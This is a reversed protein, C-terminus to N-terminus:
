KVSQAAGSDRLILVDLDNEPVFDSFRAEYHTAAIKKIGPFCTLVFDGPSTNISLRFKGIPGGWNRATTLIYKINWFFKERDTHDDSLASNLVGGDAQSKIEAVTDANGCFPEIASFGDASDSLVLFGGGVVPNYTQDLQVVKGAPFHQVWYYQTKAKWDAWWRKNKHTHSSDSVILGATELETIQGSSLKELERNLRDPFVTGSLGLSSLRETIDEGKHFARVEIRLPIAKGDEKVVFNVYNESTNPFQIIESSIIRGDVDPLPFGVTLDLDHSSTNRFRYSISIRGASIRLDEAEMVVQSVKRPELGGAGLTVATDNAHAVPPAFLLILVLSFVMGNSKSM